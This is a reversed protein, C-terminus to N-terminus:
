CTDMFVELAFLIAHVTPISGVNFAPKPSRHVVMIGRGYLIIKRRRAGSTMPVPKTKCRADLSNARAIAPLIQVM